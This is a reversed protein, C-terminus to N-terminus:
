PCAGSFTTAKSAAFTGRPGPNATGADKRVTGGFRVCQPSSAGLRLSLELSGQSAEDLSFPITGNRGICVARWFGPKIFVSKCPGNTGNPDSYKYGRSGLPNGLAEWSGAPLSLTASESTTPNRLTLTGGNTVPDGASGLPPTKIAVDRAVGSIRRAGPDGARDSVGLRQGSVPGVAGDLGDLEMVVLDSDTGAKGISDAFVVNDASDVSLDNSRYTQPDTGDFLQRWLESGDAGALKLIILDGEGARNLRGRVVINGAGDAVVRMAIDADDNPPGSVDRSWIDAGTDGDLKVIRADAETLGNRVYGGAIVDGAGDVAVAYAADFEQESGELARSWLEAGTAAALKIVLYDGDFGALLANGAGDLALDELVTGDLVTTWLVSGDSGALKVVTGDRDNLGTGTQGIVIVNGAADVAVEDAHNFEADGGIQRRWLETGDDGDFKIVTFVTSDTFGPLEEVVLAGGAVVDGAGDIAVSTAFDVSPQLGDIEQRWLEMGNGGALKIVAFDVTNGAGVVDSTGTTALDAIGLGPLDQRWIQASTEGDLKVVTSVGVSGTVVVDGAADVASTTGGDSSPPAPSTIDHRWAGAPPAHLAVLLPLIDVFARRRRTHAMEAHYQGGLCATM